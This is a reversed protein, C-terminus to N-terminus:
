RLYREYIEALREGITNVDFRKEIITRVQKILSAWRHYNNELNLIEDKLVDGNFEIEKSCDGFSSDIGEDINRKTIVGIASREGLALVPRGCLMAEIAVRGSGVVMHSYQYAKTIESTFGMQRIVERGREKNFQKIYEGIEPETGGYILLEFNFSGILESLVEDIFWYLAEGKPGSQRGAFTMTFKDKYKPLEAFKFHGVDIMNPLIEMREPDVKFEEKLQEYVAKCFPLAYDGLCPNLRQTFGSHLRMHVSVIHPTDTLRGTWDGVWASARSHSHILDISDKKVLSNVERIHKIRNYLHRDNFDIETYPFETQINITDSALHIYAGRSSLYNAMTIASTEAGTLELQSLLHLIRM